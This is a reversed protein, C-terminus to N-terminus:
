PPKEPPKDDTKKKNKNKFWYYAYGGFMFVLVTILLAAIAINSNDDIPTVSSVYHPHIFIDPLGIAGQAFIEM